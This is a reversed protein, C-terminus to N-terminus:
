TDKDESRWQALIRQAEAEDAAFRILQDAARYVGDQAGLQQQVAPDVGIILIRPQRNPHDRKGLSRLHGVAGAPLRISRSLDFITEVPHQVTNLGFTALKAHKHLDNWNWVGEAVYRIVTKAEDDWVIKLPM